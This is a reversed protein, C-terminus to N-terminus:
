ENARRYHLRHDMLEDYRAVFDGCMTGIEEASAWIISCHVDGPATNILDISWDINETGLRKVMLGQEVKQAVLGTTYAVNWHTLSYARSVRGMLAPLSQRRYDPHVWICGLLACRGTIEKTKEATVAIRENPQADREPNDYAARLSVLEDYMTTDTWDFFRGAQSTVVEGQSNYGLICFGNEDTINCKSPDFGSFLPHWTAMNAANVEFLEEFTAFRLTVDKARLESDARLLLRGVMEVPGHEVLVDEIFATARM